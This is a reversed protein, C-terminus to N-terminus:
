KFQKLINKVQEGISYVYSQVQIAEGAQQGSSNPASVYKDFVNKLTAPLTLGKQEGQALM